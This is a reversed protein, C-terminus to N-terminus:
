RPITVSGNSGLQGAPTSVARERSWGRGLRVYVLDPNAGLKIAWERKTLTLGKNTIKHVNRKNRNQVFRNAWICNPPNYGGNNDVREIMLGPRYTGAMDDFFNQFTLWRKCVKIGRGNYNPFNKPDNSRCRRTMSHWVKYVPHQKGRVAYGHKHNRIVNDPRKRGCNFHKM